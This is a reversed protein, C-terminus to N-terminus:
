IFLKINFKWNSDSGQLIFKSVKHIELEFMSNSILTCCVKVVKQVWNSVNAKASENYEWLECVFGLNTRNRLRIWGRKMANEMLEKRANGEFGLKEHYKQFVSIYEQRTLGFKELNELIFDIHRVVPFIDNEPSLWYGDEIKIRM